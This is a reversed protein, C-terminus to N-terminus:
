ATSTIGASELLATLSRVTPPTALAKRLSINAAFRQNLTLVLTASLMSSGGLDFFSDNPGVGPVDLVECFIQAVVKALGDLPENSGAAEQEALVLLAKRDLKGSQTLPLADVILYRHPLMWEPLTQALWQNLTNANKNPAGPKCVIFALLQAGQPLPKVACAAHVLSDHRQLLDEIEELEIRYGNVKVQNDLRGLYHLRGEIDQRCLDGSRYYRAGNDDTALFKNATLETEGYYGLGVGLGGLLLENDEILQASYGPLATGISVITPAAEELDAQEVRHATAWITCETPGYLNWLQSCRPLLQQALTKGLAEGISICLRPQATVPWTTNCLVQWLSPTAQVVDVQEQGILRLLSDADRYESDDALVLTGAYALPALLEFLSIDFGFSACGLYRLGDPLSWLQKVSEFFCALNNHSLLVGKPQGSSGSTFMLYAPATACLKSTTDLIDRPTPYGLHEGSLPLVVILSFPLSEMQKQLEPQTLLFKLKASLGSQRLRERPLTPDLPVYVAGCHWVALMTALLQPGRQMGVGICDGRRVGFNRLAIVLLHVKYLLQGNTFVKGRFCILPHSPTNRLDLLLNTVFSLPPLSDM